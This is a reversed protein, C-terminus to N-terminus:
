IKIRVVKYVSYFITPYFCLILSRSMPGGKKHFTSSELRCIIFKLLQGLYRYKNRRIIRIKHIYIYIHIFIYSM